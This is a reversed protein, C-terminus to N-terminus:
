FAFIHLRLRFDFRHSQPLLASPIQLWASFPYKPIATICASSYVSPRVSNIVRLTSKMQMYAFSLKSRCFPLVVQFLLVWCTATGWDCRSGCQFGSRNQHIPSQQNKCIHLFAYIGCPMPQMTKLPLQSSTSLSITKLKENLQYATQLSEIKKEKKKTWDIRKWWVNESVRLVFKVLIEMVPFNQHNREFAM